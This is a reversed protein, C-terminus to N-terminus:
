LHYLIPTGFDFVMVFWHAIGSGTFKLMKTHSLIEHLAWAVRKRKNTKRTPDAQGRAIRQYIERGRVAIAAIAVVSISYALLGLLITM